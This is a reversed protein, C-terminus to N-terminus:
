ISKERPTRSGLLKTYKLKRQLDNSEIFDLFDEENFNKKPFHSVVADDSITRIEIKGLRNAVYIDEYKYKRFGVKLVDKKFYLSSFNQERTFTMAYM